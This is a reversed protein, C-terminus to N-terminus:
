KPKSHEIMLEIFLEPSVPKSFYYGQIEDCAHNRLFTEQEKTEVGEAIVTLSLVKGMAIIAETIANDETDHPIDRIFSRDVKLTDIPFRKLQALSSYGTGFDDIALRVGMKKLEILLQIARDPNQIVMSETLELELLHPAMGTRELVSAIDDLLNDDAFQRASLNIAMCLSPFGQHQWAVNQMCAANLVWKGIPVILGTEEALPIFKLPPVIGLEPHQWRLLAEVGTIKEAKLDLKAQYQLFFENRELAQRLSTELALRELSQSKINDSFFLFNNKGEEKARYMAVDANKMLSQEDQAHVPYMCIGISASVRCEQGLLVIPKVIVSLLKGAIQAVYEQEDVSQLLIVFEDGGLRAVVDSSRLTQTLRIAMEQLLKDGAEHGLTDNIVKFRDLDIFLVAFKHGYRRATRIAHNLIESFLSRNPLSTLVDHTALYKIREESLKRETVDRGIGRYGIFKGDENFVPVGSISIDRVLGSTTPCKLQLDHFPKHGALTAKFDNWQEETVDIFPLEWPKKGISYPLQLGPRYETASATDYKFRFEEDQEWCWDSSLDILTQFREVMERLKREAQIRQYFQGIQQSIHEIADLMTPNVGQVFHSYFELVSTVEEGTRIPFAFASMLQAKAAEAVRVFGPAETVNRIWVLSGDNCARRILSRQDVIRAAMRKSAELFQGLRPSDEGWIEACHLTDHQENFEWHAGCAWGLTECMVQIIHRAIDGIHNSTSLIRTLTHEINRWLMTNFQQTVDKAVGRYGKFVGNEDFIPQGSTSLYRIQDNSDTRRYVFDNFPQRTELVAIHSDWRNGKNVPVADCEWRAKGLYQTPDIGVRELAEGAILTFRYHDDQEWYWDSLLDILGKFREEPHLVAQEVDGTEKQSM